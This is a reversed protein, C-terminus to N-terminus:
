GSGGGFFEVVKANFDDAHEMHPAHRSEPYSIFEARPILSALKEGVAPPIIEDKDGWFLLTPARVSSALHDIPSAMTKRATRLMGSLRKSDDYYRLAEIVMEDTLHEPYVLSKVVQRLTTENVKRVIFRSHDETEDFLGSASVLVLREILEPYHAALSVAIQGGLSHGILHFRELGQEHAVALVHQEFEDISYGSKTDRYDPLCIEYVRYHEALVPINYWWSNLLGVIGHILVVPTHGQGYIRVTDTEAHPLPRSM